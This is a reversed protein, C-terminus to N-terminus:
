LLILHDVVVVEQELLVLVLTTQQHDLVVLEVRVVVVLDALLIPYTIVVAVVVLLMNPTQEQSQPIYEWEVMELYPHLLMEESLVPVEEEVVTIDSLLLLVQHEVM